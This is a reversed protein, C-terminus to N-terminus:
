SAGLLGVLAAAVRPLHQETAAYLPPWGGAAKVALAVRTARARDPHQSYVPPRAPSGTPLWARLLDLDDVVSPPLDPPLSPPPADTAIGTRRAWAQALELRATWREQTCLTAMDRHRDTGDAWGEARIHRAAQPDPSERAWRIVLALDAGFEDPARRGDARWLALISRADTACRAPNVTAQKMAEVCRLVMAQVATPPHGGCLRAPPVWPM